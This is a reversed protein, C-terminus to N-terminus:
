PGFDMLSSYEITFRFVIDKAVLALGVFPDWRVHRPFAGVLKKKNKLGQRCLLLTTPNAYFIYVLINLYTGIQLLIFFGVM